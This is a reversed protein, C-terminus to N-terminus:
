YGQSSPNIAGCASHDAKAGAQGSLYLSPIPSFHDAPRKERAAQRASHRDGHADKAFCVFLLFTLWRPRLSSVGASARTLLVIRFGLTFRKGGEGSYVATGTDPLIDNAQAFGPYLYVNTHPLKNGRAAEGFLGIMM